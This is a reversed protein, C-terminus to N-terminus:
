ELEERVQNQYDPRTPVTDDKLNRDVLAGEYRLFQNDRMVVGFNIKVRGNIFDKGRETIQWFGQKKKNDTPIGPQILSWYFLKQANTWQSKTLNLDKLYTGNPHQSLKELIEILWTSLFFRYAIHKAGCGGPITGDCVFSDKKIAM